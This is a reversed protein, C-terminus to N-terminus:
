LLGFSDCLAFVVLVGGIFGVIYSTRRSVDSQRPAEPPIVRYSSGRWLQDGYHSALAAGILATGLLFIPASDRAILPISRRGGRLFVCGFTAGVALGALFQM